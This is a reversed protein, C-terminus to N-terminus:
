QSGSYRASGYYGGPHGKPNDVGVLQTGSPTTFLAYLLGNVVHYRIRGALTGDPRPYTSDVGLARLLAEREDDSADGFDMGFVVRSERNLERLVARFEAMRSPDLRRAYGLLFETSISVSTPYVVDAVGAVTSLEDDRLASTDRERPRDHDRQIPVSALLVGGVTGIAVASLMDRRTSM